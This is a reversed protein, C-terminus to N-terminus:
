VGKNRSVFAQMHNGAWDILEWADRRNAVHRGEGTVEAIEVGSKKIRLFLHFDPGYHQQFLGEVQALHNRLTEPSIERGFNEKLSEAIKSSPIARDTNDGFALRALHATHLYEAHDFVQWRRDDPLGEFPADTLRSADPPPLSDLGMAAQLRNVESSDTDRVQRLTLSVQERVRHDAAVAEARAKGVAAAINGLARVVRRRVQAVPDNLAATCIAALVGEDPPAIAGLAQAAHARVWASKDQLMAVLAPVVGQRVPRLDGLMGALMGRLSENEDQLGALIAAILGDDVLRGAEEFLRSAEGRVGESGDPMVTLLTVLADEPPSIVGLMMGILMRSVNDALESIDSSPNTEAM